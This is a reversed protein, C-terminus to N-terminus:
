LNPPCIIVSKDTGFFGQLSGATGAPVHLICCLCLTSGHQISTHKIPDYLVGSYMVVTVAVATGPM